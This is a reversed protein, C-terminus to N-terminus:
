GQLEVSVEQHKQGLNKPNLDGRKWSDFIIYIYLFLRAENPIPKKRNNLKM